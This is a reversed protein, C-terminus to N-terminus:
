GDEEVYIKMTVGRGLAMRSDKVEVVVPGPRNNKIMKVRVSATLGLEALRRCLGRGGYIEVVTGKAGEPLMILPIKMKSAEFLSEHQEILSKQM